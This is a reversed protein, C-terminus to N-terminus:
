ALEGITGDSLRGCDQFAPTTSSTLSTMSRSLHCRRISSRLPFSTGSPHNTGVTDKTVGLHAAIQEASLWVEAM